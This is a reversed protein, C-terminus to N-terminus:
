EAERGGVWVRRQKDTLCLALSRPCPAPPPRHHPALSAALNPSMASVLPSCSRARSLLRFGTWQLSLLIVGGVFPICLSFLPLLPPARPPFSLFHCFFPSYFDTHSVFVPPFPLICHNSLCKPKNSVSSYKLTKTLM